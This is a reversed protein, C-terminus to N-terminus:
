YIITSTCSLSFVAAKVQETACVLIQPQMSHWPIIDGPEVRPDWGLLHTHAPQYIYFYARVVRMTFRLGKPRETSACRLIEHRPTNPFAAPWRSHQSVLFIILMPDQPRERCYNDRSSKRYTIIQLFTMERSCDRNNYITPAVSVRYCMLILYLICLSFRTRYQIILRSYNSAFQDLAASHECNKIIIALLACHSFFDFMTIHISTLRTSRLSRLPFTYVHVFPDHVSWNGEYNKEFAYSITLKIASSIDTM